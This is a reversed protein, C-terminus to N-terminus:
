GSIWAEHHVIKELEEPFGDSLPGQQGADHDAEGVPEDAPQNDQFFGGKLDAREGTGQQRANRHRHEEEAKGAPTQQRPATTAARSTPRPDRKTERVDRSFWSVAREMRCVVAKAAPKM